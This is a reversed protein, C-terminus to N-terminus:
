RGKGLLWELQGPSTIRAFSDIGRNYPRDILIVKKYFEPPFRPYDEVIVTDDYSLENIVEVKDQIDNVYFVKAWPIYDRLWLSTFPMWHPPQCTMVTLRKGFARKAVDLYETPPAEALLNLRDGMFEMFSQGNPAPEDWSHPERGRGVMPSLHRLVGDLDFVFRM